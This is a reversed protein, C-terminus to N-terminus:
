PFLENYLKKFPELLIPRPWDLKNEQRLADLLVEIPDPENNDKKPEFELESPYWAPYLMM